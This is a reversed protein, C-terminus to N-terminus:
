SDLEMAWAEAKPSPKDDRASAADLSQPAPTKVEDADIQTGVPSTSPTPIIDRTQIKDKAPGNAVPVAKPPAEVETEGPPVDAPAVAVDPGDSNDNAATLPTAIPADEIETDEDDSPKTPSSPLQTNVPSSSKASPYEAPPASVRKEPLPDNDVALSPRPSLTPARPVDQPQTVPAEPAHEAEATASAELLFAARAM